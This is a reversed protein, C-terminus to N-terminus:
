NRTNDPIFLFMEPTTRSPIICSFTRAHANLVPVRCYQGENIDMNVRRTSHRSEDLACPRSWKLGLTNTNM